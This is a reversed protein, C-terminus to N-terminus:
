AHLIAQLKMAGRMKAICTLAQIEVKAANMAASLAVPQSSAKDLYQDKVAAFQDRISWLADYIDANVDDKDTTRTNVM